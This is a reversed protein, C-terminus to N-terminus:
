KLLKEKFRRAKDLQDRKKRKIHNELLRLIQIEALPPQAYDFGVFPDDTRVQAGSSTKRMIELEQSINMNAFQENVVNLNNM